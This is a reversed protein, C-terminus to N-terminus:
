FNPAWKNNKLLHTMDWKGSRPVFKFSILLVFDRAGTRLVTLSRFNFDLIWAHDSCPVTVCCHRRHGGALLHLYCRLQIMGSSGPHWLGCVPQCNFGADIAKVAFGVEDFSAEAASSRIMVPLSTQWITSKMGHWRM